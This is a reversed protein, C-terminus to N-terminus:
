AKVVQNRGAKKAKYLANDARKMVAFPDRDKSSKQVVGSSINVYITKSSKKNRISFPSKAIADRLIDTHTYSEDADKSPFLLVFEEGGYRYVKGGGGVNALRSAVMKLVEDGTDHGYTDNFKKFHDIDIMALSYKIGLKAMDEVLARRGPLSTLEDYFALRYSERILLIFIIVGIALMSLDYAHATKIFYLGAYFTVTIVFFSSNYILYRNFILFAGMIFLVFIGIAFSLDQLPYFSAAFLKIKFLAILSDNPYAVLYSVVGIELLFFLIKLIGWISFLGRERLSLFILLHLPYLLSVYLFLDTAKKASLYEFGANVLLLPVVIFIFRNRNFHWSVWLILVSIGYFLYPVLDFIIEPIKAEYYAIFLFLLFIFFPISINLLVSKLSNM